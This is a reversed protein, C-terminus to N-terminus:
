PPRVAELIQQVEPWPVAHPLRGTRAAVAAAAGAAEGLAVANGTLRYSAHAIFDGSIDRGALLLGDADRALLARYPIDYPRSPVGANSYGGGAAPTVAHVDVGATGRCVADEHAAGEVLDDRTVTYRGQIRRGERLGIQEGTAVVRLHAWVGGLGRLANVVRQIEARGRLTAQTIQAADAASVDYEHNAMLGYLGAGFPFLTPEGYSPEVGARRLEALLRQKPRLEGRPEALGRIFLAAEDASLGTVVAILSAPQCRGAADGVDFGCGAQAAFDGDGTADIFAAAPWAQRGSKSETIAHTVRGAADRAAAAARTHLQVQVGAGACLEELYLKLAEPEFALTGRYRAAAARAALAAPIERALGAKGSSDMMWSMLGATWIGGLCGHVEFLRVTAGARAATVAAAIGAPGAGCVIVDAPAMAPLDRGPERYTNM